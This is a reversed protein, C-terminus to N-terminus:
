WGDGRKPGGRWLRDLMTDTIHFPEEGGAARIHRAVVELAVLIYNKFKHDDPLNHSLIRYCLLKGYLSLVDPLKKTPKVLGAILKETETPVPVYMNKDKVVTFGCFTLGEITNSVKVKDPKVWMGFIDAYMSIVIDKYNDPLEPYTSLRDDGYILSDVKDWMDCLEEITKNPHIFAYEFAQFFVNCMNNDMTTSIQGSPNGRNQITVEGSPLMVYRHMINHCYWKYADLLKASKCHDSLCSYRFKKIAILVENPITGDYRTWDFEVFHKNGKDVLRSIRSHFGGSFPSWGCQGMRTKTRNKMLQNQHEEFVCGIRAFIPDSCVIQRIDSEEIKSLKQIEKKLFLYWLVKPREGNLISDFQQIYDKYGRDKLYESETKWWLCKPYSATSDSNKSTATIDTLQTDVLFDYERRLVRMAFKWERPYNLEINQQPEKYTFKQFSKRYAEPGWVTPGYAIEDDYNPLLNLLDDIPEDYDSIPRDIPLVGILPYTSPTLFYDGPELLREWYDM